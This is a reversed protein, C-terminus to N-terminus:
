TGPTLPQLWGKACSQAILDDVAAALDPLDLPGLDERLVSLVDASTCPQADFCMLIAADLPSLDITEGSTAELVVPQGDLVQWHLDLLPNLHYAAPTSM